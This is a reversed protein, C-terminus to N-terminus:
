PRTLEKKRRICKHVISIRESPKNIPVQFVVAFAENATLHDGKERKLDYYVRRWGSDSMHIGINHTGWETGGGCIVFVKSNIRFKGFLAYDVDNKPHSTSDLLVSNSIWRTEDVLQKYNDFFGAKILIESLNNNKDLNQSISFYRETSQNVFQIVNNSLGILIYTKIGDDDNLKIEEDWKIQPVPLGLRSFASVFSSAATVDNKIAANSSLRWVLNQAQQKLTNGAQQSNNQNLVFAPIIIAISGNGNTKDDCGFLRLFSRQNSRKEIKETVLEIIQVLSTALMSTSISIGILFLLNNQEGKTIIITAILVLLSAILLFITISFQINRALLDLM